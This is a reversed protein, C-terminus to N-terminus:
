SIIYSSGPAPADRGSSSRVECWSGFCSWTDIDPALAHNLPEGALTKPSELHADDRKWSFGYSRSNLPPRWFPCFLSLSMLLSCHWIDVLRESEKQTRGRRRCKQSTHGRGKRQKGRERDSTDPTKGIDNRNNHSVNEQRLQRDEVVDTSGRRGAVDRRTNRPSKKKWFFVFSSITVLGSSTRIALLGGSLAVTLTSETM